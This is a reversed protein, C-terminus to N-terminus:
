HLGCVCICRLHPAPTRPGRSNTTCFVARPPPQGALCSWVDHGGVIYIQIYLSTNTDARGEVAIGWFDKPNFSSRYLRRFTPKKKKRKKKEQKWIQQLRRTKVTKNQANVKQAHESTGGAKFGCDCPCSLFLFHSSQELLHIFPNEFHSVTDPPTSTPLLYFHM